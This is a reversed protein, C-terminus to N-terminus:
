DDEDDEDDDENRGKRYESREEEPDRSYKGDIFVMDIM